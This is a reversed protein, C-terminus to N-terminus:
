SVATTTTESSLPAAPYGIVNIGEVALEKYVTGNRVEADYV